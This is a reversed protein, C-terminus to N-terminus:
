RFFSRIRWRLLALRGRWSQSLIAVMMESFPAIASAFSEGVERFAHNLMHMQNAMTEAVPCGEVHHEEQPVGHVYCAPTPCYPPTDWLFSPGSM